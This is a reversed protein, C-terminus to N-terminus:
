SSSAICHILVTSSIIQGCLMSANKAIALDAMRTGRLRLRMMYSNASMDIISMRSMLAVQEPTNKSHHCRLALLRGTHWGHEVCRRADESSAAAGEGRVSCYAITPCEQSARQDHKVFRILTASYHAISFLLHEHGHIPAVFDRSLNELHKVHPDFVLLTNGSLVSPVDTFANM